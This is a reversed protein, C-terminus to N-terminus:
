ATVLLEDVWLPLGVSAKEAICVFGEQAWRPDAKPDILVKQAQTPVEYILNAAPYVSLSTGVVLLIDAQKALHIAADMNPVAEGFFVVHPRLQSGLDCRQGMALEPGEIPYTLSADISSQSRRVQGHLHLVHDSGAREHLDDINQTIILVEMAASLRALAHHAANPQAKIVAERRANYFAQVLEPQRSWAEPTCVDEIHHDEWLGDGDRFTQLGSEASIGAGTFVVIKKKNM